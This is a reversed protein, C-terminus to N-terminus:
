RRQMPGGALNFGGFNYNIGFRIVRSITQNKSTQVFSASTIRAANRTNFLDDGSITFNLKRNLFSKRLDMGATFYGETYGQIFAQPGFYRINGGFNWNQPLNLRADVNANFTLRDRNLQSQLRNVFNNKNLNAGANVNLKGAFLMISGNLEVGYARNEGINEYFTFSTDRERVITYSTIMNDTQRYYISSGISGLATFRNYGLEFSNGRSPELNLNGSKINLQDATNIYPNLQDMTPRNVRNSYSFRLSQVDDMKFLTSFSPHLTLFPKNFGIDRSILDANLHYNELRLGGVFTFKGTTHTFQTYVSNIMDTKNFDNALLNNEVFGEEALTDINYRNQDLGIDTSLGAEFRSKNKNFPWNLDAKFNITSSYNKTYARQLTTDVQPFTFFQNYASNNQMNNRSFNLETRLEKQNQFDFGRMRGGGGSGGPGGPMTIGARQAMAKLGEPNQITNRISDAFKPNKAAKLAISDGIKMMRDFNQQQGQPMFVHRYGVGIKATFNNSNSNNDRIFNKYPQQSENMLTNLSSNINDNNSSTVALNFSMSNATNFRLTNNSFFNHNQSNVNGSSSQNLYSVGGQEFNQRYLESATSNSYPSYNYNNFSSFKRNFYNYGLRGSYRNRTNANAGVTFSSGRLGSRNKTVINIIGGSGEASYKASPNTLVEIKQLASAPIMDLVKSLETPEGDVLVKIDSSGRVSVKGEADVQVSPIRQLAEVATAGSNQLSEEVNYTVGETGVQFPSRPATVTVENLKNSTQKLKLDDYNVVPKEASLVINSITLTEYGVFSVTIKYSGFPVKQFLFEGSENSYTGKSGATETAKLLSVTVFDLPQLTKVDIVKGTIKGSTPAKNSSQAFSFTATSIIIALLIGLTRKM